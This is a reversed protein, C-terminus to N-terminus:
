TWHRRQASAEAMAIYMRTVRARTFARKRTDSTAELGAHAHVNAHRTGPNNCTKAYRKDDRSRGTRAYARTRTVGTM